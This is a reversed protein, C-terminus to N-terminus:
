LVKKPVRKVPAPEPEEVAIAQGQELLAQADRDDFEVIDGAAHIILEGAKGIQAAAYLLQVQM